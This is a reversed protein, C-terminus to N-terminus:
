GLTERVTGLVSALAEDLRSANRGGAQALTARGGGGGGIIRAVKKVLENARLGREVLDPTVAAVLHPRGNTVTGLVIVSSSNHKRFWDTMERLTDAQGAEIRAALVRVGDFEQAQGALRDFDHRAL